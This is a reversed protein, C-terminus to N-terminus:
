TPTTKRWCTWNGDSMDLPIWEGFQLQVHTKKPPITKMKKEDWLTQALFDPNCCDTGYADISPGRIQAVTGKNIYLLSKNMNKYIWIHTHIKIYAYLIYIIYENKQKYINVNLNVYM